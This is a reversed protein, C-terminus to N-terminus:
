TATKERDDEGGVGVVIDMEKSRKQSQQLEDAARIARKAMNM